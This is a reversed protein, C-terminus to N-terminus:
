SLSASVLVQRVDGPLDTDCMLHCLVAVASQRPSSHRYETLAAKPRPGAQPRRKAGDEASGSMSPGRRQSSIAM